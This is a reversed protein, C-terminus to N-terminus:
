ERGQVLSKMSVAAAMANVKLALITLSVCVRSGDQCAISKLKEGVGLM